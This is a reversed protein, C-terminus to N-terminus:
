SPVQLWSTVDAKPLYLFLPVQHRRSASCSSTARTYTSCCCAHRICGPVKSCYAVYLLHVATLSVGNMLKHKLMRYCCSPSYLCALYLSGQANLVHKTSCPTYWYTGLFPSPNGSSKTGKTSYSSGTFALYQAPHMRSPTIDSVISPLHLMCGYLWVRMRRRM